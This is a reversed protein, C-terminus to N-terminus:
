KPCGRSRAFSPYLIYAFSKRLFTENQKIIWNSKFARWSRLKNQKKIVQPYSQRKNGQDRYIPQVIPIPSYFIALPTRTKIFHLLISNRFFFENNSSSLRAEQQRSRSLHTSSNSNHPKPIPNYFITANQKKCQIRIKIQNGQDRYIPQVM